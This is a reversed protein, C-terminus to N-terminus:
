QTALRKIARGNGAASSRSKETLVPVTLIPKTAISGVALATMESRLAM